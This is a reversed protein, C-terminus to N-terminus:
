ATPRHILNFCAIRHCLIGVTGFYQMQWWIPLGSGDDAWSRARVFLNSSSSMPLSFPTWNTTQSGYVGWGSSIWDPQLLDSKTQLDFFVAPVTNSIIGVLNGASIGDLRIWLNTGYDPLVYGSGNPTYSNTGGDGGSGGPSPVDMAMMNGAMAQSQQNAATAQVQTILNVVADAQSAVESAM